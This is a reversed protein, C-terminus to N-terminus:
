GLIIKSALNRCVQQHAILFHQYVQLLRDVVVFFQPCCSEFRMGNINVYLRNKGFRVATVRLIQFVRWVLFSIRSNNWSCGIIAKLLFLFRFSIIPIAHISFPLTLFNLIVVLFPFHAGHKVPLHFRYQLWTSVILVHM